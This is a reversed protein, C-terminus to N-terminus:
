SGLLDLLNQRIQGRAVIPRRSQVGSPRKVAGEHLDDVLQLLTAGFYSDFVVAQSGDIEVGGLILKRGEALRHVDYGIGCRIM